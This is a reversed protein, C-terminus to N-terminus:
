FNVDARTPVRTRLLVRDTTLDIVRETMREMAWEIPREIMRDIIWNNRGILWENLLELMGKDILRCIIGDVAWEIRRETIKETNRVRWDTKRQIMRGTMRDTVREIMGEFICGM